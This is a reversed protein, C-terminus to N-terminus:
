GALNQSIYQGYFNGEITYSPIMQVTWPHGEPDSGFRNAGASVLIDPVGNENLYGWVAAHADDGLSGVVAFVKDRDVLKRVAELAKAPDSQNDEALYVIKRGCVGGQTENIYKFYAQTAGPIMAYVAGSVGALPADIGLVIETDSIGPAKAAATATTAATGTAAPRAAGTSIPTATPTEAEQGGGCAAVLIALVGLALILVSFSSIRQFGWSM